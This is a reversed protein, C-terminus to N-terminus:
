SRQNDVSHTCVYKTKSPDDSVSRTIVDWGSMNHRFSHSKYRLTDSLLTDDVEIHREVGREGSSREPTVATDGWGFLFGKGLFLFSFFDSLGPVM